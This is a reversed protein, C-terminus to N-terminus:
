QIGIHRNITDEPGQSNHGQTRTYEHGQTRTDKHTTNIETDQTEQVSEM